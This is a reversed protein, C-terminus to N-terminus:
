EGNNYTPHKILIYKVLFPKLLELIRYGIILVAPIGFWHAHFSAQINGHMFHAMSRGIGCGPCWTFGIHHFICLTTGESDDPYIMWLMVLAATWIIPESFGTLKRVMKPPKMM